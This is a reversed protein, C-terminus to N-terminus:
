YVYGSGGEWRFAIEKDNRTTMVYRTQGRVNAIGKAKSAYYPVTEQSQHKKACDSILVLQPNCGYTDFLAECKGNERGHHPAVLIHLRPMLAAFPGYALVNEFGDREMDGPFLFNTKHVSMHLMLSLNNETDWRPCCPNWYWSLEVGPFVPLTEVWGRGRRIALTRALAEIGPGMGDETKLHVITEPAVTPNGLICGIGVGQEQLDPFGSMHDEDFNTCVLLDIWTIGMSALHRGPYWREGKFDTNHGCDILIRKATRPGTPVTLLACAGHDVDFIQLLGQAIDVSM